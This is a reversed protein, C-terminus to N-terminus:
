LLPSWLVPTPSCHKEIYSPLFRHVHLVESTLIPSGADLQHVKQSHWVCSKHSSTIFITKPGPDLSMASHVHVELSDAGVEEPQPEQLQPTIDVTQYLMTPLHSAHSIPSLTRLRNVWKVGCSSKFSWARPKLIDSCSLPSCVTFLM